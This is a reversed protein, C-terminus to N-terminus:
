LCSSHCSAVVARRVVQLVNGKCQNRNEEDHTEQPDEDTVDKLFFSIPTCCLSFFYFLFLRLFFYTILM